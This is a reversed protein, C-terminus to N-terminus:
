FTPTGKSEVGGDQDEEVRRKKSPAAVSAGLDETEKAKRKRSAKSIRDSGADQAPQKRPRGLKVSGDPLVPNKPPAKKKKGTALAVDTKYADQYEILAAVDEYFMSSDIVAFEGVNTFDVNGYGASSPDLQEQAVLRRYAAVTYYRHRRERGSTEMLGAIGLDSLHPPPPVRDARALLLEITRKDFHCLAM